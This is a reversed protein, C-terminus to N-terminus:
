LGDSARLAWSPLAIVCYLMCAMRVMALRENKLTVNKQFAAQAKAAEDRKYRDLQVPAHFGPMDACTCAMILCCCCRQAHCLAARAEQQHLLAQAATRGGVGEGVESMLVERDLTKEAEEAQLAVAKERM